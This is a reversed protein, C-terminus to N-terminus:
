LAHGDLLAFIAEKGKASALYSAISADTHPPGLRRAVLIAPQVRPKDTSDQTVQLARFINPVIVLRVESLQYPPRM